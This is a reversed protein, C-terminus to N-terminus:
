GDMSVLVKKTVYCQPDRSFDSVSVWESEPNTRNNMSLGDVQQYYGANTIFQPGLLHLDKAPTWQKDRIYFVGADTFNYLKFM